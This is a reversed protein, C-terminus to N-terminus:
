PALGERRRLRDLGVAVLIVVGQVILQYFSPVNMLTMGNGLVGIILAGALTGLFTGRGGELSTGGLVVAAIASLEYGTGLEPAASQLRAASILGAVGACFGGFVYVLLLTRRVPLGALQAAQRSGGVVLVHRGFVTRNLLFAGSGFVAIMIVVPVPIGAVSGQGVWGFSLDRQFLTTADTGIYVLGRLYTLAAL